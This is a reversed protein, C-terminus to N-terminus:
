AAQVVGTSTAAIVTIIALTVMAGTSMDRAMIADAARQQSAESTALTTFGTVIIGLGLAGVARWTSRPDDVIRRAALLTASTPAFRAAVRGAVMVVWPGLGNVALIMASLVVVATARDPRDMTNVALFWVVGVIVAVAVRVASLRRPTTRAAVGLPSIVVKALSSLGSILAVAVVAVVVLAVQGIPLILESVEFTRGQFNLQAVLPLAAAYIAVGALAGVVAQTAAEALTMVTVQASTAGSLRLAALRQDRRAIALRAAVGGLTLIPIVLCTVAVWALTVYTEGITPWLADPGSVDDANRTEFARLGGLSVLLAGTAVAFAIVSLLGPVRDHRADLSRMRWWLSLAATM